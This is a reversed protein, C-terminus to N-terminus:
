GTKCKRDKEGNIDQCLEHCCYQPYALHKFGKFETYAVKYM